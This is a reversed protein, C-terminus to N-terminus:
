AVALTVEINGRTARSYPCVQHAAEMLREAAARELGPFHGELRVALAFSVDDKSLAVTSRIGSGDPLKVGQTRAVLRLASEFCSGYGIAFLQEPNTGGGPGGLSRPMRLDLELPPDESRAKGDRGGTVHAQTEYLKQM